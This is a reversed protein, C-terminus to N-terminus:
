VGRLKNIKYQIAAIAQDNEKIKENKLRELTDAEPEVELMTMVATGTGLITYYTDSATYLGKRAVFEYGSENTRVLDVEITKEMENGKNIYFIIYGNVFM